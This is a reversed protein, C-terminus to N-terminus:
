AVKSIAESKRMHIRLEKIVKRDAAERKLREKRSTPQGNKTVTNVVFAKSTDSLVTPSKRNVVPKGAALKAKKRDAKSVHKKPTYAKKAKAGVGSGSDKGLTDKRPAGGKRSSAGYPSRTMERYAAEHFAMANDYNGQVIVGKELMESMYRHLKGLLKKQFAADAKRKQKYTPPHVKKVPPKQPSSKDAMTKAKVTTPKAEKKRDREIARLEKRSPRAALVQRRRKEVAALEEVAAAVKNKVLM